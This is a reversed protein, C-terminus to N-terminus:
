TRQVASRRLWRGVARLVSEGDGAIKAIDLTRTLLGSLAGPADLCFGCGTALM